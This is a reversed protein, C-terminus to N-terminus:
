VLKTIHRGSFYLCVRKGKAVTKIEKVDIKWNAAMLEEEFKRKRYFHCGTIMIVISAIACVAGVSAHVTPDALIFM